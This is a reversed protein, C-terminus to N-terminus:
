LEALHELADLDASQGRGLDGLESDFQKRDAGLLLGGGVVCGALALDAFAHEGLAELLSGLLIQLFYAAARHNFVLLVRGIGRGSASVRPSGAPIPGSM